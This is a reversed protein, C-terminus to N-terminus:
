RTPLNVWHTEISKDLEIGKPLSYGQRGHQIVLGGSRLWALCLYSQYDPFVSGNAADKLPLVKGM